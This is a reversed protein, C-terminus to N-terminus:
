SACKHPDISTQCTICHPDLTHAVAIDATTAAGVVAGLEDTTLESLRETRLRLTRHTTM